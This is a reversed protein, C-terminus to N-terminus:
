GSRRLAAQWPSRDLGPYRRGVRELTEEDWFPHGPPPFGLVELELPGAQQVFDHWEASFGKFQWAQYGAWEMGAPRYGVHLMFRCRGPDDFDVSRHYVDPRYAVVSGAPASAVGLEDEYLEPFEAFGLTHREPPVEATKPLSVFRTAGNARTVDTLYIFAELQQFGSRRSPVALTQNPFDAHLLQNYGSPQGAYKASAIAMYMRVDKTGLLVRAVEILADSVVLRSLAHSTFPFEPWRADWDRWRELEPNRAEAAMEEASPFLQAVGEQAAALEPGAFLGEIM